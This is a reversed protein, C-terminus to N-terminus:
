GAPRTIIGPANSDPPTPKLSAVEFQLSAASDASQARLSQACLSLGALVIGAMAIRRIDMLGEQHLGTYCRRTRRNSRLWGRGGRSPAVRWARGRRPPAFM